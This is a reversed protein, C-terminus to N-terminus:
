FVTINYSGLDTPDYARLTLQGSGPAGTHYNVVVQVSSYAPVTVQPGPGTGAISCYTVQGGPYCSLYHDASASGPNAVTFTAALTLTGDYAPATLSGGDPTVIPTANTFAALAPAIAASVLLSGLVVVSTRGKGFRMPRKMSIMAKGKARPNPVRPMCGPFEVVPGRVIETLTLSRRGRLRMSSSTGALQIQHKQKEHAFPPPDRAENPKAAPETSGALRELQIKDLFDAAYLRIFCLTLSVAHGILAAVRNKNLVFLGWCNRQQM